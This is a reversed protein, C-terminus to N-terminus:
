SSKSGRMMGALGVMAAVGGGLLFWITKDTPSGNFTRSISSSVSNSATIGYGILIIGAVLLALSILKNM